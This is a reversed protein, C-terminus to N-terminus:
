REPSSATVLEILCYQYPLGKPAEFFRDTLLGYIEDIMGPNEVSLGVRISSESWARAVRALSHALQRRQTNELTDHMATFYACPVSMADFYRLSSHQGISDEEVLHKMEDPATFYDPIFIATLEEKSIRGERYLSACVDRLHDCGTSAPWRDAGLDTLAALV